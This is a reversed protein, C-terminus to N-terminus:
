KQNETAQYFQISLKFVEKKKKTRLYAEIKDEFEMILKKVQGISEPDSPITITSFYREHPLLELCKKKALDLSALHHKTIYKCALEDTTTTRKKTRVLTGNSIRILGVDILTELTKEVKKPALNLKKAIWNKDYKFGETGILSLLTYTQIDSIKAFEQDTVQHRNETFTKAKINKLSLHDLNASKLFAKLESENECIKQAIVEIKNLPIKRKGNIIASLSSSDISLDRAFSRISYSPNKQIRKKLESNLKSIYFPSNNM